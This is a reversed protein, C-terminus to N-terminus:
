GWSVPQVMPKSVQVTPLDTFDAETETLADAAAMYYDYVLDDDSEGQLQRTSHPHWM